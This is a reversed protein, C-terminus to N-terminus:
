SGRRPALLPHPVVPADMYLGFEPPPTNCYMYPRVATHRSYSIYPDDSLLVNASSSSSSHQFCFLSSTRRLGKGRQSDFIRAVVGFALFCSTRSAVVVVPHVDPGAAVEWCPGIRCRQSSYHPRLCRSTGQVVM